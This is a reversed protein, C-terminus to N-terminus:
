HRHVVRLTEQGCYPWCWCLVSINKGLMVVGTYLRVCSLLSAYIYSRDVATSWFATNEM